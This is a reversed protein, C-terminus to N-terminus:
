DQSVLPEKQHGSDTNKKSNISLGTDRKLYPCTPAPALYYYHVCGSSEQEVCAKKTLGCINM